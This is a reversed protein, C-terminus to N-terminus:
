APPFVEALQRALVEIDREGLPGKRRCLKATRKTAFISIEDIELKELLPVNEYNTMCLCGRIDASGLEEARIVETVAEVQRKVGDILKTRDRGNIMLHSTRKSLLGGRREVRVKGKYNKSDIVTVGGPGIALHDINARSGPLRRDHLLIVGSGDLHKQLRAANKAEGKAGELWAKEHQPSQLRAVGAGLAGFRDRGRSIRAERRRDGEDAASAGAERPRGIERPALAATSRGAVCADCTVTRATDDWTAVTGVSLETGCGVCTDPRRLSLRKTAM